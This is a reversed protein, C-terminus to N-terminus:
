KRRDRALWIAAAAVLSGVVVVAYPIWSLHGTLHGGTEEQLARLAGIALFMIGTGILLGGALGYAVYRLLGKLPDVTEQKAYAVVLDKLERLTQQPNDAM